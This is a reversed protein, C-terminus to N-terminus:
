YGYDGLHLKISQYYAEATPTPGHGRRYRPVRRLILRQRGRNKTSVPLGFDLSIFKPSISDGGNCFWATTNRYHYNQIWGFQEM